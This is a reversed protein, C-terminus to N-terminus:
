GNNEDKVVELLIERRKDRVIRCYVDKKKINYFYECRRCKNIAKINPRPRGEKITLPCYVAFMTRPKARIKIKMISRPQISIKEIM